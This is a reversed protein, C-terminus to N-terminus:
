RTNGALGISNVVKNVGKVQHAVTEAMQRQYDTDVLGYLYVVGDVSQVTILNPAELEAHGTFAAQVDATIKADGPCGKFGCKEYSACGSLAASLLLMAALAVSKMDNNRLSTNSPM